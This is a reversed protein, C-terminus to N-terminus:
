YKLTAYYADLLKDAYIKMDYGRAFNQAFASIEAYKEESKWLSILQDAFPIPSNETILYGNKGEHLIDRNGRGDLSIVPLAASMAELLVLGFPEYTAPHVYFDAKALFDKVNGVNGHFTISNELNNKQLMQNLEDMLPGYGLVDITFPIARNSLEVGLDILLKHNKKKVLNGVSVIRLTQKDKIKFDSEVAYREFKFGNPIISVRSALDKPLNSKLYTNVDNSIAIFRTSSKRYKKILWRREIANALKTKNFLKRKKPKELQIMNDHGHSFYSINKNIYCRAVIEAEFLHSHVIHPKFEEILHKFHQNHLKTKKVISFKVRSDTIVPKVTNEIFDKNPFRFFTEHPPHLCVLKVEHGRSMLEEIVATLLTEAGGAALVPIVYVIRLKSQCSM